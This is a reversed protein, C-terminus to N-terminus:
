YIDGILSLLDVYYAGSTPARHDHDIKEIAAGRGGKSPYFSVMPRTMMALINHRRENIPENSSHQKLTAQIISLRARGNAKAFMM